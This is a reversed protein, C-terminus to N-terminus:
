SVDTASGYSAVLMKYLSKKAQATSGCAPHSAHLQQWSCVSGWFHKQDTATALGGCFVSLSAVALALRLTANPKVCDRFDTQPNLYTAQACTM